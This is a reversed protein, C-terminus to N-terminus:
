LEFLVGFTIEAQSFKSAIYKFESFAKINEKWDYIAGAGINLGPKTDSTNVTSGIFNTKTSYHSINLGAIAYFNFGSTEYFKYHGDVDFAWRNFTTINPSSPIFITFAASGSLNELLFDMGYTGNIKLGINPRDTGIVLGGGVNIPQANTKTILLGCILVTFVIFKLGKTKMKRNNNKSMISKKISLSLILFITYIYRFFHNLPM